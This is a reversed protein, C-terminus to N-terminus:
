TKLVKYTKGSTCSKSLRIGPDANVSQNGQFNLEVFVPVPKNLAVPLCILIDMQLGIEKGNFYVTVQKRVAKGNLAKNDNDFVKFTMAEPRAPSRGYM